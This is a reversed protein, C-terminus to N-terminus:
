MTLQLGDRETNTLFNSGQSETRVSFMWTWLSQIDKQTEALDKSPHAWFCVQMTAGVYGMHLSKTVHQKASFNRCQSDTSPEPPAACLTSESAGQFDKRAEKINVSGSVKVCTFSSGNVCAWLHNPSLKCKCYPHSGSFSLVALFHHEGEAWSPQRPWIGGETGWCSGTRKSCHNEWILISIRQLLSAPDCTSQSHSHLFPHQCFCLFHTQLHCLHPPVQACVGPSFQPPLPLFRLWSCLPLTVNKYHDSWHRIQQFTQPSCPSVQPGNGWIRYPLLSMRRSPQATTLEMHHCLLQLAVILSPLVPGRWERHPEIHSVHLHPLPPVLLSPVNMRSQEESDAPDCQGM